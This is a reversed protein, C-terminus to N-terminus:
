KGPKGTETPVRSHSSRQSVKERLEDCLYVIKDCSELKESNDNMMSVVIPWHQEPRDQFCVDILLSAVRYLHFLLFLLM